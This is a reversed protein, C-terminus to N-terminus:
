VVTASYFKMTSLILQLGLAKTHDSEVLTAVSTGRQSRVTDPRLGHGGADGTKRCKSTRSPTSM